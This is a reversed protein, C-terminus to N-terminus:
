ELEPLQLAMTPRMLKPWRKRNGKWVLWAAFLVDLLLVVWLAFTKVNFGEGTKPMPVSPATAGGTGKSVFGYVSFHDTMFVASNGDKTFSLQQYDPAELNIYYLGYNDKRYDPPLPLKVSVFGNPQVKKGNKTLTIDYLHVFAGQGFLDAYEDNQVKGEKLKRVSLQTGEALVGAEASVTVGTAPDALVIRRVSLDAGGMGGGSSNGGGTNGSNPGGGTMPLNHAGTNNDAIQRLTEFSLTLDNGPNVSKLTGNKVRYISQQSNLYVFPLNAKYSERLFLVLDDGAGISVYDDDTVMENGIKGGQQRLELVDGAAAGGQYVELVKIRYVTYIDYPDVGPPPAELWTNLREVREDLIRARVIDTAASALHPISDYHPYVAELQMTEMGESTLSAFSSISQPGYLMNVSEIDFATPGKLISMDADYNMISGNKSGGAPSGNFFDRLGVSHGLEHAFIGTVLHIQNNITRTNMTIRSQLMTPGGPSTYTKANQGLWSDDRSAVVVTNNTYENEFFLVNAGSNNWNDKSLRMNALWTEDGNTFRFPVANTPWWCESHRDPDPQPTFASWRAYLITNADINWTRASAGTSTYYQTGGSIADYYGAFAYGSRTPMTAAPMAADYTATVSSTGGIGSQRDFAVTYTNPTWQAYLAAITAKDWTRASAGTASYYQIGGGIADYYGAFTYGTRTPMTAAPMAAGYTAMVNSSGGTGNQKNFIVEYIKPTWQAYLTANSTKDWLRPSTGSATYHLTGGSIADYYGAFAYGDRKPVTIAPMFEGYEVTVSDSGGTGGQKDFTVTYVTDATWRAYLAADSDKNWTRASTGTATYYQTGGSTADYYGAFTYGSRTPITISPMDTDYTATTDNSGGAGGQKDFTVTYTNATWHAYLTTDDEKDWTRASAGTATYYQTGGSAADYYGAFTYGTRSPITISPMAADYTATVGDSGDIGGQKAFTITYDNATWRAYLTTDDEKDWTKASTGTATYYQTGGSAADYYGAFRYGTRTPMVASPMAAGYTAVISNSGGSGGQKDLTVTYTDATWVAYMTTNKDIAVSAGANYQTGGASDEAWKSFTCGSRSVAAALTLSVASFATNEYSNVYQTGSQSAPATGGGNTNYSLTLIREYLGYFTTDASISLPIAALGAIPATGTSWGRSTWSTFANQAPATVNGSAANNYITVTATRTAETTGDYDIFTATLTKQYIAYLTVDGTGMSLSALGATADENTNWGAFEWDEKTATGTLDIAGGEAVVASAAGSLPEGGNTTTDYSVTHTIATWRAYLTADDDKNWARASAGAATYYQAGGSIADYYGAFTYGSRTPMAASPMAADYTATVSAPGGTGGQKDFTVTYTNATWRAYLTAAADKDWTRASTGAATYYQIGGSIADYYGAFTYGTRTPMTAAPMADDYTATVGDSGGTGGQKDLTVTFVPVESWHAYLTADDAKDWARASTGDATYYQTGDSAADYYGAFIDSSRTPVTIAPMAADYTATVDDSGGTGAQKDLTVTYTKAAWRAYLTTNSTKDWTRASAGTATYYQAGGSIADYYGAFTYGTRTPVTISPMAAGYSATASASGGTGGQRDLTVTNESTENEVLFSFGDLPVDDVSLVVSELATGSSDPAAIFQLFAVPNEPLECGDPAQTETLYYNKIADLGQIYFKGSADTTISMVTGPSGDSLCYVNGGKPILPIAAGTPGGTRLEFVADALPANHDAAVVKTVDFEFTYVKVTGPATQGVSASDGPDNNYTMYATSINASGEPDAPDYIVADANLLARFSAMIPLRQSAYSKMASTWAAPYQGDLCLPIVVKFTAGDTDSTSVTRGIPSSPNYGPEIFNVGTYSSSYLNYPTLGESLTVYVTLYYDGYAEMQELTPYDSILMRFEAVDSSGYSIRTDAVKMLDGTVASLAPDYYAYYLLHEMTPGTEPSPDDLAYVQVTDTMSYGGFTSDPTIYNYHLDVTAANASGEPDAPDYIVADSNVKANFVVDIPEQRRAADKMAESWDAPYQGGQCWPIVIRFTAGGPNATNITAINIGTDGIQGFVTGDFTLGESLTVDYVAYYDGGWDEMQEQTQYDTFIVEFRADGGVPVGATKGRGYEGGQDLGWVWFGTEPESEGPTGEGRLKADTFILGAPLGSGDANTVEITLVQPKFLPRPDPVTPNEFEEIITVDGPDFVLRLPGELPMGTSDGRFAGDCYFSLKLEATEPNDPPSALVFAFETYKGDLQYTVCSMASLSATALFEDDSDGGSFNGPGSWNEASTPTLTSLAVYEDTEPSALTSETKAALLAVTSVLLCCALLVSLSKRPLRKLLMRMQKM